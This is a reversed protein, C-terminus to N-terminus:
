AREHLWQLLRLAIIIVYESHTRTAMPTWCAIRMHWITMEARVSEVINKWTIQYVVGNEFFKDFVFHKNQIKTCLKESINRM